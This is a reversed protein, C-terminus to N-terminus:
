EKGLKRITEGYEKIVKKVAKKIEDKSKKSPENAKIGLVKPDIAYTKGIKIAPLDGKQIKKFVAVRSIGLIDAVEQTSLLKKTMTLEQLYTLM